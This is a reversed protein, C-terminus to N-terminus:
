RMGRKDFWEAVWANYRTVLPAGFWLVAGTVVLGIIADTM